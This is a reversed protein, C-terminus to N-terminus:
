TLARERPGKSHLFEGKVIYTSERPGKSLLYIISLVRFLAKIYYYLGWPVSKTHTKRRRRRWKRRRWKWERCPRHM